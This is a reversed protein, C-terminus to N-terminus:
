KGKNKATSEGFVSGATRGNIDLKLVGESIELLVKQLNVIGVTYTTKVEFNESFLSLYLKKKLDKLRGNFSLRYKLGGSTNIYRTVISLLNRDIRGESYISVTSNKIDYSFKKIEGTIVGSFRVPKGEVIGNRM